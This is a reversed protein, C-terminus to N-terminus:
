NRARFRTIAKGIGLFLAAWLLAALVAFVGGWLKEEATLYRDFSYFLVAVLAAALAVAALRQGISRNRIAYM